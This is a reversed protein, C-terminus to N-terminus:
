PLRHPINKHLQELRGVFRHKDASSFVFIRDASHRELKIYDCCLVEIEEPLTSKCRLKKEAEDAAM